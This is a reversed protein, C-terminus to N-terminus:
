AMVEIVKFGQAKARSVMDATGKGGPFAIVVDPKGEDLMQQNRIPGAAKGHTSWDANFRRHQIRKRAAWTMALHDAGQAGGDIITTIPMEAHQSDLFSYLQDSNSYFRGGCVLAKM